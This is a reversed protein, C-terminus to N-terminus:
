ICHSLSVTAEMELPRADGANFMHLHYLKQSLGPCALLIYSVHSVGELELFMCGRRDIWRSGFQYDQYVSKNRM